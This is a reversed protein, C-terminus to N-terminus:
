EEKVFPQGFVLRKLTYLAKLSCMLTKQVGPGLIKHISKDDQSVSGHRM